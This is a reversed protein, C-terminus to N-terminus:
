KRKLIKLGEFWDALKQIETERSYEEQNKISPYSLRRFCHYCKNRQMDPALHGGEKESCEDYRMKLEAIYPDIKELRKLITDIDPMYSM